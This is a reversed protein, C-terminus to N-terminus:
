GGKFGAYGALFRTLGSQEFKRVDWEVDEVLSMHSERIEFFDAPIEVGSDGIVRGSVRRYCEAEFRELRGLTEDDLELLVTGHVVGAGKVLGPYDEGKIRLRRYGDLRAPMRRFERSVLRRWVEEYMLSGYVFLNTKM